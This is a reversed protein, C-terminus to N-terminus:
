FLLNMNSNNQTNSKQQQNQPNGFSIDGMLQEFTLQNNNNNNNSTNM